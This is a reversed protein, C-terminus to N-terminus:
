KCESFLNIMFHSSIKEEHTPRISQLASFTKMLYNEFHKKVKSIKRYSNMEQQTTEKVYVIVWLFM